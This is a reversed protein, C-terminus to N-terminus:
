RPKSAFLQLPQQPLRRGCHWQSRAIPIQLGPAIAIPSRVHLRPKSAFLQLPQQPLRRGCHWQSRAIPIQLGPA